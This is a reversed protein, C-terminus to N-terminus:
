ESFRETVTSGRKQEFRVDRQIGDRSQASKQSVLEQRLSNKRQINARREEAVEKPIRALIVDNVRFASGMGTTDGMKKSKGEVQVPEYGRFDAFGDREFKTANLWRYEFGEEKLHEPITLPSRRKFSGSSQSVSGMKKVSAKTKM